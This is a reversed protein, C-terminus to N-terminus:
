IITCACKNSVSSYRWRGKPVDLGGVDGHPVQTGGVGGKSVELGQYSFDLSGLRDGWHDGWRNSSSVDIQRFKLFRFLGLKWM